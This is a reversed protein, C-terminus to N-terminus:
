FPDVLMVDDCGAYGSLALPSNVKNCLVRLLATETDIRAKQRMNTFTEQLRSTPGHILNHYYAYNALVEKITAALDSTDAFIIYEHYPVVHAFASTESVVITGQLLAPLVRFEELTLHTAKQHTNLVIKSQRFTDEVEQVTNKNSFVTVNIEATRLTDLIAARRSGPPYTITNYLALCDITRHTLPVNVMQTFSMPPIYLIKPLISRSYDNTQELIHINPLSYEIIIDYKALGYEPEYQLRYCSDHTPGPIICHKQPCDGSCLVIAHEVQWFINIADSSLNAGRASVGDSQFTLNEFPFEDGIERDLIHEFHELSAEAEMIVWGNVVVKGEAKGSLIACYALLHVVQWWLVRLM